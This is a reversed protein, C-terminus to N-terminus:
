QDGDGEDGVKRRMEREIETERERGTKIEREMACSRMERRIEIKWVKWRLM